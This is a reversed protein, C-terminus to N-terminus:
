NQPGVRSRKKSGLIRRIEAIQSGNNLRSVKILKRLSIRSIEEKGNLSPILKLVDTSLTNLLSMKTGLTSLKVNKLKAFQRLSMRKREMERKWKMIKVLFHRSREKQPTPTKNKIASCDLSFPSAIRWLSKGSSTDISFRINTKPIIEAFEPSPTIKMSMTRKMRAQESMRSLKISEVADALVARKEALTLSNQVLDMDELTLVMRSQPIKDSSKAIAMEQCIEGIKTELAKDEAACKSLEKRLRDKVLDDECVLLEDTIADERKRLRERESRKANCSKRLSEEYRGDRDLPNIKGKLVYGIASFVVGEVADASCSAMLNKFFGGIISVVGIKESHLNGNGEDRRERAHVLVGANKNHAASLYEALRSQGSGRDSQMYNGSGNETHLRPREEYIKPVMGQLREKRKQLEYAYKNKYYEVSKKLTNANNEVDRNLDVSGDPNLIGDRLRIPTGGDRSIKIYKKAKGEVTIGPCNLANVIDSKSHINGSKIENMIKMCAWNYLDNQAQNWTKSHSFVRPKSNPPTLEPKIKHIYDSYARRMSLDKKHNYFMFKRGEFIQVVRINLEIDNNWNKHAYAAWPPINEEPVGPFMTKIWFNSLWEYFKRGNIDKIPKPDRFVMTFAPKKIGSKKAFDEMQRVGEAYGAVLESPRPDGNCDIDGELYELSVDIYKDIM